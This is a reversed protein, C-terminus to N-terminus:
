DVVFVTAGTISRARHPSGADDACHWSTGAALNWSTGDQHEIVIQGAVVFALHGKQCWHDGVFDPSYDVLRMQIEGFQRVRMM